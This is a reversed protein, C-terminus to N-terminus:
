VILEAAKDDIAALAKLFPDALLEKRYLPNARSILADLESQNKRNVALVHLYPPAAKAKEVIDKTIGLLALISIRKIRSMTYRKTKVAALFDFYELHCFKKIRNELGEGVEAIDKLDDASMKILNEMIRQYLPARETHVFGVFDPLYDKLSLGDAAMARLATASAFRESPRESNYNDERAVTHLKVDPYPKLAKIYELALINNPKELIGAHEPYLSHLAEGRSRPFNKGSKLNKRLLEKFEETENDLVESLALLSDLDGSESGFSLTYDGLFSLTKVAGFAFNQAPSVAFVAPLELVLDAGAKVAWEARTFRDAVAIDGRETFSGSMVVVLLDSATEEKAQRLHYLHGTHFPNYEAIISTIRM